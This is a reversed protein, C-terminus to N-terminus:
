DYQEHTYELCTLFSISVQEKRGTFLLHLVTTFQLIDLSSIESVLFQPDDILSSQYDGLISQPYCMSVGIKYMCRTEASCMGM